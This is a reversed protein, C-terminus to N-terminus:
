VLHWPEVRWATVLGAENYPDSRAFQEIEARPVGRFVIAAGYIPDGLAGAMVIRGAERESDILALHAPRHPARRDLVDAVYEYFLIRHEDPNSM